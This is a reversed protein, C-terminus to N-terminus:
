VLRPLVRQSKLRAHLIASSQCALLLRHLAFGDLLRAVLSTQKSPFGRAKLGPLIDVVDGVGRASPEPYLSNTLFSALPKKYHEERENPQAEMYDLLRQLADCFQAFSAREIALKRLAKNLSQRITLPTQHSTAM